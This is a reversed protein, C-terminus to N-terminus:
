ESPSLRHWMLYIVLCSLLILVAALPGSLASVRMLALAAVMSIAAFVTGRRQGLARLGIGVGAAPLAAVWFGLTRIDFHRVLFRFLHFELSMGVLISILIVIFGKAFMPLLAVTNCRWVSAIRGDNVGQSAKEVIVENFRRLRKTLHSSLAGGLMGIVVAFPLGLMLSETMNLGSRVVPLLLGLSIATCSTYDTSIFGGAPVDFLWLLQLVAGVTAGLRLDGLLLGMISGCVIPQAFMGRFLVNDDLSLLAGVASLVLALGFMPPM